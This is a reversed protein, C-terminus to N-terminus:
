EGDEVKLFDANSDDIGFKGWECKTLKTTKYGSYDNWKNDICLEKGGVNWYGDESDSVLEHGKIKAYYLPEKVEWTPLEVRKSAIELERMESIWDYEKKWITREDMWEQSLVEPEDLQDLEKVYADM